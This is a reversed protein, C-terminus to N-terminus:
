LWWWWAHSCRTRTSTVRTLNKWNSICTDGWRWVYCHKHSKCSRIVKEFRKRSSVPAYYWGTYCPLLRQSTQTWTWGIKKNSGVATVAYELTGMVQCTLSLKPESSSASAAVTWTESHITRTSYLQLSNEDNQRRKITGIHSCHNLM